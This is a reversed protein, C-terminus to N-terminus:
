FRVRHSHIRPRERAPRAAQEAPSGSYRSGAPSGFHVIPKDPDSEILAFEPNSM